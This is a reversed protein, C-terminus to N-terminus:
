PGPNISSSAVINLATVDEVLPSTEPDCVVTTVDDDTTVVCTTWAGGLETQLYVVAAEPDDLTTPDIGFTIKDVTTPDAANLDYVINTVTYGSIVNATYGAATDPVTNGAAFAYASAAVIIVVLVVLMVKFNRFMAKEKQKCIRNTRTQAPSNPKGTEPFLNLWGFLIAQSIELWALCVLSFNKTIKPPRAIRTV